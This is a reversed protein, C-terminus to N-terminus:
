YHGQYGTSFTANGTEGLYEMEIGYLFVISM